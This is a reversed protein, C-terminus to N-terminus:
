ARGGARRCPACPCGADSDSLVWAAHWAGDDHSIMRAVVAEGHPTDALGPCSRRLTMRAADETFTSGARHTRGVELGDAPRAREAERRAHIAAVANARRQEREIKVDLRALRAQARPALTSGLPVRRLNRALVDRQLQLSELTTTATTTTTSTMTMDDVTAGM